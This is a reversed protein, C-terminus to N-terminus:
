PVVPASQPQNTLSLLQQHTLPEVRPFPVAQTAISEVQSACLFVETGSNLVISVVMGGRSVSASVIRSKM